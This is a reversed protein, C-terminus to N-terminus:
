ECEDLWEAFRDGLIEEAADRLKSGGAPKMNVNQRLLGLTRLQYGQALPLELIQRPSLSGQTAVTVLGM